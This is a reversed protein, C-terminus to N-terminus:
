PAAAFRFSALGTIDTSVVTPCIYTEIHEVVLETGRFHSVYPASRPNYMSDTLDRALVVNKGRGVMRRLGFSRGVICMNTHVGMMIINEIGREALLCCIEDGSDSIADEPGITLAAHQRTWVLRPAEQRNECGNDSHDIPLPPESPLKPEPLAVRPASMARLRQPTDAYSAMTESPAHIILTGLRRAATLVTDMFPALENVRSAANPCWHTDWMDCVLVATGAGEWEVVRERVEIEGAAGVLRSRMHLTLRGGAEDVATGPAGPGFDGLM